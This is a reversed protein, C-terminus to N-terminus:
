LPDRPFGKGLGLSTCNGPYAREDMGSEPITM